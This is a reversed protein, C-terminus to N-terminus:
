NTKGYHLLEMLEQRCTADYYFCGSLRSTVMEPKSKQVGRCSMCSHTAKIIVATGAPNLNEEIADHIQMTLREQVQLRKSYCDLLRALKSIGVINGDGSPVYAIDARGTFPLMHHECLSVFEIDRLLVIGTYKHEEQTFQRSLIKAPDHSYGVTMEVLAKVVRKPTEKLGDREPNEGIYALLEKIADEVM